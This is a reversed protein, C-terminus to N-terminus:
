LLASGKQYFNEMEDDPVMSGGTGWAIHTAENMKDMLGNKELWSHSSCLMSIGALGALASPEMRILERDSLMALMSFLRNDDVTLVGDVLPGVTRGVLGSPRSVALGDAETVGDLGFDHVSVKENFGTLIGLLVSPAHTPEAFFCHVNDGFIHKLGFCIGGPAGGVGCPLYVFLPHESDVMINQEELQDALRQAAVSYGLFLDRSNEDDVFHCASDNAALARGKTVADSYDGDYEVVNVGHSRLLKKKWMRAAAAMHVTVRFGFHAGMLGISLGLNGTSGVALSFKRFIKRAEETALLSYDDTVAIFGADLAVKEAVKLVEYIGGRAKISGSVPLLNDCKLYLRGGFACSHKELEKQMAPIPRLPSEIIGGSERTEPFFEAICPAFRTLRAAADVIDSKKLVMKELVLSCKEQRQNFWIVEKYQMIERLCPYTRCWADVDISEREQSERMMRGGKKM